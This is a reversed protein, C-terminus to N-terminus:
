LCKFQTSHPTRDFDCDWERWWAGRPRWTGIWWREIHEEAPCWLARVSPVKTGWHPVKRFM